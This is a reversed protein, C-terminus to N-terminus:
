KPIYQLQDEGFYGKPNSVLDHTKYHNGSLYGYLLEKIATPHKTSKLWMGNTYDVSPWHGDEPEYGLELARLMNYLTALDPQTQEKGRKIPKM